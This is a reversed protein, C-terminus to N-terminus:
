EMERAMNDAARAADALEADGTIENRIMGVAVVIQRYEERQAPDPLFMARSAADAVVRNLIAQFHVDALMRKAAESQVM